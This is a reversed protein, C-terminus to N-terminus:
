GPLLRRVTALVTAPDVPKTIVASAGADMGRRHEAPDDTATVFVVPMDRMRTDSKLRECVEYGDMGPMLADLLVLDPPQAACLALAQAGSTAMFMQYHHGLVMHLIRINLPQDDVVLIRPKAPAATPTTSM